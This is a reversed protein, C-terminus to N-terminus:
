SKGGEGADFLSDDYKTKYGFWKGITENWFWVRLRTSLTSIIFGVVLGLDAGVLLGIMFMIIM